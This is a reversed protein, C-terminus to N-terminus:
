YLSTLSHQNNSEWPWRQLWGPWHFMYGGVTTNSTGEHYSVPTGGSWNVGGQNVHVPHGDSAGDSRIFNAPGGSVEWYDFPGGLDQVDRADPSYQINFHGGASVGPGAGGKPTVDTVVLAVGNKDGVLCYDFAAVWLMQLGGGICGGLTGQPPDEVPVRHSDVSAALAEPDQVGAPVRRGNITV